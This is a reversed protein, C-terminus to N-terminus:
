PSLFNNHPEETCTHYSYYYGCADYCTSVWCEVGNEVRHETECFVNQGREPCWTRPDGLPMPTKYQEPFYISSSYLADKWPADSSFYKINYTENTRLAPGSCYLKDAIEPQMSCNYQQNNIMVAYAHSLNPIELIILFYTGRDESGYIKANVFDSGLTPSPTVTETSTLTSTATSVETMTTIKPPFPTISPTVTETPQVFVAPSPTNVITQNDQAPVCAALIALVIIFSFMIKKM